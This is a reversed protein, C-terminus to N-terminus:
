AAAAATEIQNRIMAIVQGPRRYPEVADGNVLVQGSFGDLEVTQLEREGDCIAFRIMPLDNMFIPDAVLEAKLTLGWGEVDSRLDPPTCQQMIPDAFSKRAKGKVRTLQTLEHKEPLSVREIARILEPAGRFEWDQGIRVQVDRGASGFGWGRGQIVALVTMIGHSDAFEIAYQPNDDCMHLLQALGRLATTMDERFTLTLVTNPTVRAMLKEFVEIRM